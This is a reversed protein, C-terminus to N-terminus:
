FVMSIHRYLIYVEMSSFGEIMLKEGSKGRSVERRYGDKFGFALGWWLAVRVGGWRGFGTSRSRGRRTWSPSSVGRPSRGAAAAIRPGPRDTRVSSATKKPPSIFEGVFRPQKSKKYM